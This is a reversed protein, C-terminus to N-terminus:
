SRQNLLNWFLVVFFIRWLLLLLELVYWLQKRVAQGKLSEVNFNNTKAPMIFFVVVTLDSRHVQTNLWSVRSFVFHPFIRDKQWTAANLVTVHTVAKKKKKKCTTWLSVWVFSTTSGLFLSWSSTLEKTPFSTADPSSSTSPRRWTSTWTGAPPVM